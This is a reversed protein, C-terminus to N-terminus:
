SECAPVGALFSSWVQGRENRAQKDLDQKESRLAVTKTTKAGQITHVELEPDANPKSGCRFTFTIRAVMGLPNSVGTFTNAAAAAQVAAAAIWIFM